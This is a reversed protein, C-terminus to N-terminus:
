TASPCTKRQTRRNEGTLIMGGSRRIWEHIMKPSSLRGTLPRLEVSVYDWGMADIVFVYVCVCVYMCLPANSQSVILKDQLPIIKCSKSVRLVCCFLITVMHPHVWGARRLLLCNLVNLYNRLLKAVRPPTINAVRYTLTSVDDTQLCYNIWNIM